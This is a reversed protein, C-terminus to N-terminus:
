DGPCEAPAETAAEGDVEGLREAPAEGDVEGPGPAVGPEEAAEVPACGRVRAERKALSSPPYVGGLDKM